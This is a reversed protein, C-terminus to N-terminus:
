YGMGWYHNPLVTKVKDHKFDKVIVVLPTGLM